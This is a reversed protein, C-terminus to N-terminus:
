LDPADQMFGLTKLGIKRKKFTLCVRASKPLTTFNSRSTYGGRGPEWKSGREREGQLAM